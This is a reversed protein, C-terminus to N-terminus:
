TNEYEADAWKKQLDAVESLIVSIDGMLDNLISKDLIKIKTLGYLRFGLLSLIDSIIRGIQAVEVLDRREKSRLIREWRMGVGDSDAHILHSSMGYGYLLNPIGSLNPDEALKVAMEYFSWSHEIKRRESKPFDSRIKSVEEEELQLDQLPKKQHVQTPNLEDIIKTM